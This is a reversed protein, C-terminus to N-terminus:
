GPLLREAATWPDLRRAAVDAALGDLEPGGSAEARERLLAAVIRVLEEAVRASRRAVLEGTDTLHARHAEIASRLDDV